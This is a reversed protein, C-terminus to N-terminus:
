SESGGHDAEEGVEGDLIAAFTDFTDKHEVKEKIKVVRLAQKLTKMDLKEEYEEVLLRMDEKLTELENEITRAKGVFEDVLVKLDQLSAPQRDAGDSSGQKKRRAM